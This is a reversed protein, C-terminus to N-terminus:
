SVFLGEPESEIKDAIEGFTVNSDNMRALSIQNGSEEYPSYAGTPDRIGLWEMVEHTLYGVSVPAEPSARFELNDEINKAPVWEGQGTVEKYLACAVGLCCYSAGGSEEARKLTRKGQPYDGSRLAAVWAKANDNM